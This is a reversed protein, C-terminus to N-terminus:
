RQALVVVAVWGCGVLRLRSLSLSSIMLAVVLGKRDAEEPIRRKGKKNNPDANAKAGGKGVLLRRTIRGDRGQDDISDDEDESAVTSV